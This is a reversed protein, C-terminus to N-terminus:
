EAAPLTVKMTTGEGLVSKASIRGGHLEVIGRAIALGLGSGGVASSSANSGRYFREFLHPLDAAPVGMGTDSITIVVPRDHKRTTVSVTVTGGNPTFKVANEAVTTLAHGLRSDDGLVIPTADTVLRLTVQRGEAVPQLQSVVRAVVTNVDLPLMEVDLGHSDLRTLILMEDVIAHLRRASHEAAGLMDDAAKPIDGGAGDRVVELYGLVSTLPTRMEHNLTAMMESKSTDLERLDILLRNQGTILRSMSTQRTVIPIATLVVTATATAVAAINVPQQTAYVLVTIAAVASAAPVIVGLLPTSRRIATVRPASAFGLAWWAMLALGLPWGADTFIGARYDDAATLLAYALDTAVFVGVGAVFWWIRRSAAFAPNSAFGATLAVLAVDLMPYALTYPRTEFTSAPANLIPQVLVLLVSTTGLASIVIELSLRVAARLTGRAAFAVFGAVMFVYFATYGVDSLNPSPVHGSRDLVVNYVISGGAWSTVGLAALLVPTRRVTSTAVAVWFVLVPSWVTAVRFVINIVSIETPDVGGVIVVLLYGLDSAIVLAFAILGITASRSREM